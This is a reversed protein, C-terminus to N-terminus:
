DAVFLDTMENTLDVQTARTRARRGQENADRETQDRLENRSSATAHHDPRRRGAGGQLEFKARVNRVGGRGLKTFLPQLFDGVQFYEGLKKMHSITIYM